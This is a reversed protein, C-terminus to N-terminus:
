YKRWEGADLRRRISEPLGSPDYPVARPVSGESGTSPELNKNNTVPHWNLWVDEYWRPNPISEKVVPSFAMSTLHKWRMASESVCFGFNHVVGPLEVSKPRTAETSNWLLSLDGRHLSAMARPRQIQWEPTRWLEVQPVHAWQHETHADWAAFVREAEARHFVCDPDILLVERMADPPLRERVLNTAYGWRNWPSFKYAEVAEVRVDRMASVRERADDFHKPWPVWEGDPALVGDTGGWPKEMFVIFAGDVHPLISELSEILFDAGYLVSPYIAVRM